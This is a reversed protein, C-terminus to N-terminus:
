DVYQLSLKILKNVNKSSIKNNEVVIQHSKISGKEM